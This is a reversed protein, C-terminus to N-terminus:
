RSHAVLRRIKSHPPIHKKHLIFHYKFAALACHKAVGFSLSHADVDDGLEVGLGAAGVVQYREDASQQGLAQLLGAALLHREASDLRAL